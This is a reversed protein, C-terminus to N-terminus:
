KYGRGFKGFSIDHVAKQRVLGNIQNVLSRCGYTNTKRGLRFFYILDVASNNFQFDFDPSQFVFCVALSFFAKTMQSLFHFFQFFFTTLKSFFPFSFLLRQGFNLLCLFRQLFGLALHFLFHPFLIKRPHGFKM